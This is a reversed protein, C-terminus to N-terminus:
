PFLQFPIGIFVALARGKKELYSAHIGGNLGKKESTFLYALLELAYGDDDGSFKYGIRPNLAIRKGLLQRAELVLIENGDASPAKRAITRCTTQNTNPIPECVQVAKAGKYGHEYTGTLGLYTNSAMLLRGYTLGFGLGQKNEEKIQEPDVITGPAYTFTQSNMTATIGFYSPSLGIDKVGQEYWTTTADKNGRKQLEDLSCNSDETTVKILKWYDVDSNLQERFTNQQKTIAADLAAYWCDAATSLKCDKTKSTANALRARTKAEDSCATTPDDIRPGAGAKNYAECTEIAGAAISDAYDTEVDDQKEMPLQSIATTIADDNLKKLAATMADGLVQCFAAREKAIAADLAAHWCAPATLVCDKTRQTAQALQTRALAETACASKPDNVTPGATAKNYDECTAIAGAALHQEYAMTLDSQEGAPRTAIAAKITTDTCADVASIAATRTQTANFARCTGILKSTAFNKGLSIRTIRLDAVTGSTLGSLSTLEVEDKDKISAQAGLSVLWQSKLKNKRIIGIEARVDTGDESSRLTLQGLDALASTLSPDKIAQQAVEMAEQARLTPVFLLALIVLIRRM